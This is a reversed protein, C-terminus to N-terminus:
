VRAIGIGIDPVRDDKCGFPTDIFPQLQSPTRDFKIRQGWEIM